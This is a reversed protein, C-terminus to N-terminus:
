IEFLSIIHKLLLVVAQRHQVLQIRKQKISNRRSSMFQIFSEHPVLSKIVKDGLPLKDHLFNLCLTCLIVIQNPTSSEIIVQYQRNDCYVLFQLYPLNERLTKDM